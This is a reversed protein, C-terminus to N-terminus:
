IVRILNYMDVGTAKIEKMEKDETTGAVFADCFNDIFHIDYKDKNDYMKKITDTYETNFKNVIDQLSKLNAFNKERM